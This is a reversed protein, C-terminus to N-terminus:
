NSYFDLNSTPTLSECSETMLFYMILLLLSIFCLVVILYPWTFKILLYHLNDGLTVLFHPAPPLIKNSNM